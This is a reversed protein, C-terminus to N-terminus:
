LGAPCWPCQVRVLGSFRSRGGKPVVFTGDRNLNTASNSKGIGKDGEPSLNTTASRGGRLSDLMQRNEERLIDNASELQTYATDRAAMQEQMAQMNAQMQQIADQVNPDM